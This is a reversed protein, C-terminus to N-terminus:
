KEKESELSNTLVDIVLDINKANKKNSALETGIKSQAVFQISTKQDSVDNLSISMLEGWTGLIKESSPLSAKVDVSIRHAVKNKDTISFGDISPLVRLLTDYVKEINYNVVVSDTMEKGIM